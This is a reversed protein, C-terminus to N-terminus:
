LRAHQAGARALTPLLSAVNELEALAVALEAIDAGAGAPPSAAEGVGVLAGAAALHDATTAQELVALRLSDPLYFRRGAARAEATLLGAGLLERTAAAGSVAD